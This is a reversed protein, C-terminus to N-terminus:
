APTGAQPGFGLKNVAAVFCHHNNSGPAFATPPPKVSTQGAGVFQIWQTQYYPACAVRYGTIPFGGDDPFGNPFTSWSIVLHGAADHSASVGTPAVKPPTLYFLPSAHQPGLGFGNQARVVCVASGQTAPVSLVLNLSTTGLGVTAPGALIPAGPNATGAQCRVQYGTLPSGGNKPFSNPVPSWSVAAHGFGDLTMKVNLPTVTPPGLTFLAAAGPPGTGQTNLAHVNCQDSVNPTFDSVPVLKSTVLGVNFAHAGGLVLSGCIVRYGTLSFGGNAPYVNPVASWSVAVHGAGVPVAKVNTPAVTPPGL